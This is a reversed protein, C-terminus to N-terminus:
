VRVTAIYLELEEICELTTTKKEPNAEVRAVASHLRHYICVLAIM